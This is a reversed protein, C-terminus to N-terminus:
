DKHVWKPWSRLGSSNLPFRCLFRLLVVCTLIPLVTKHLQWVQGGAPWTVTVHFSFHQLHGVLQRTCHVARSCLLTHPPRSLPIVKFLWALAKQPDPVNLPTAPVQHLIHAITGNLITINNVGVFSPYCKSGMVAFSSLWLLTELGCPLLCSSQGSSFIFLFVCCNKGSMVRPNSAHPSIIKLVVKSWHLPVLCWVINWIEIHIVTCWIILIIMCWILHSRVKM